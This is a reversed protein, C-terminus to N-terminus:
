LAITSAILSASTKELFLVNAELSLRKKRDVIHGAAVPISWVGASAGLTYLVESGLESARECSMGQSGPEVLILQAAIVGGVMIFSVMQLGLTLRAGLSVVATAVFFGARGYRSTSPM